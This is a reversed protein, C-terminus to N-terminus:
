IGVCRYADDKKEKAQLSALTTSNKQKIHLLLFLVVSADDRPTLHFAAWTYINMYM